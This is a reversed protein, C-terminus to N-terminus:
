HFSQNIIKTSYSNDFKQLHKLQANVTNALEIRNIKKLVCYLYMISILFRMFQIIHQCTFDKEM